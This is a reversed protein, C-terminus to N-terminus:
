TTDTPTLWKHQYDQQKKKFYTLYHTNSHIMQTSLGTKPYTLYHRNSHIMQTSLGTKPYTLYHKNSFIM